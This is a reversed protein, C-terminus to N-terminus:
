WPTVVGGKTWLRRGTSDITLNGDNAVAQGKGAVPTATLTFSNATCATCTYTYKTDKSLGTTWGLGGAAKGTYADTIINATTSYNTSNLYIKEQLSALQLLETQAAERSARVVSSNYSPIAITALIGIIAVTIVLETLTFGQQNTLSKM